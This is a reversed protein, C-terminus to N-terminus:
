SYKDLAILLLLHIGDIDPIVLRAQNTKLSGHMELLYQKKLFIALYKM